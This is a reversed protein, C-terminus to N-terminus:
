KNETKREQAWEKEEIENGEAQQPGGGLVKRWHKGKKLLEGFRGQRMPQSSWFKFLWQQCKQTGDNPTQNLGKPSVSGQSSVAQLANDKTTQMNLVM